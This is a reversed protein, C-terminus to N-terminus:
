VTEVLEFAPYLLILGNLKEKNAPVTIGSVVGGQSAGFLFVHASNVYDLERVM